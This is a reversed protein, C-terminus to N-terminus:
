RPFMVSEVVSFDQLLVDREPKASLSGINHQIGLQIAAMLESTPKKKYTVQGAEDVRRHGIKQGKDYKNPTNLTSTTPTRPGSDRSESSGMSLPAPRPKPEKPPETIRVSPQRPEAAAAM